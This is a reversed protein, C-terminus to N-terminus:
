LSPLATMVAAAFPIVSVAFTITSLEATVGVFGVAGFGDSEAADSVFGMSEESEAADSVVGSSEEPLPM